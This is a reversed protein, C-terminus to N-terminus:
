YHRTQHSVCPQTTIRDDHDVKIRQIRESVEKAIHATNLIQISELLHKQVDTLSTITSEPLETLNGEQPHVINFTFIVKMSVLNQIKVQLRERDSKIKVIFSRSCNELSTYDDAHLMKSILQVRFPDKLRVELKSMTGDLVDVDDYYQGHLNLVTYIQDNKEEESNPLKKLPERM